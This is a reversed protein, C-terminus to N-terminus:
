MEKKSGGEKCCEPLNKYAEANRIVKTTSYGTASIANEIKQQTEPNNNAVKVFVTKTDVDVNVDQTEPVTKVGKTIAEACTECQMTPVSIKMVNPDNTNMALKAATEGSKAEGAAAKTAEGSPADKSCSVLALSLALMAGTM